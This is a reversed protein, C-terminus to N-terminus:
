EVLSSFAKDINGTIASALEDDAEILWKKNDGKVLSIEIDTTTKPADPANVSNILNQMILKEQEKDDSDDESSLASAIATALSDSVTKSFIKPLDAATVTVKVTAKDGEQTTSTINYDLNKFIAKALKEEQEDDYEIKNEKANGKVFENASNIDQNKLADFFGKVSEDPKPGCGTLSITLIFLLAGSLVKKLFSKM